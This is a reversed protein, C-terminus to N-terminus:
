TSPRPRAKTTRYKIVISRMRILLDKVRGKRKEINRMTGAGADHYPKGNISELTEEALTVQEALDQLEKPANHITKITDVLLTTLNILDGVGFGFAM